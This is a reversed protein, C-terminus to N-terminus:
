TVRFASYVVHVHVVVFMLLPDLDEQLRQRVDLLEGALGDDDLVAAGGHLAVLELFAEGGVDGQQLYTPMFGTMTWPPPGSM